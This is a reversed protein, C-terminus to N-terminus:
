LIKLHTKKQSILRKRSRPLHNPCQEYESCCYCCCWCRPDVTAGARNWLLLCERRTSGNTKRTCSPQKATPPVTPTQSMWYLSLVLFLPHDCESVIETNLLYWEHSKKQWNYLRKSVSLVCILLSIMKAINEMCYTSDCRASPINGTNFNSNFLCWLNSELSESSYRLM